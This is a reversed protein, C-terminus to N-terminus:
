IKINWAFNCISDCYPRGNGAIRGSNPERIEVGWKMEERETTNGNETGRYEM